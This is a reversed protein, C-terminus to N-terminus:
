LWSIVEGADRGGTDIISLVIESSYTVTMKVPSFIIISTRWNPKCRRTEFAVCAGVLDRCSRV